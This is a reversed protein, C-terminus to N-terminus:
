GFKMKTLHISHSPYIEGVAEMTPLNLSLLLVKALMQLSIYRGTGILIIFLPTSIIQIIEVSKM